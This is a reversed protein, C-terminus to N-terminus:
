QDHGGLECTARRISILVTSQVNLKKLIIPVFCSQVKSFEEKSNAVAALGCRMFAYVYYHLSLYLHRGCTTTSVHSTCLLCRDRKIKISSFAGVGWGDNLIFFVICDSVIWCCFKKTPIVLQVVHQCGLHLGRCSLAQGGLLHCFAM